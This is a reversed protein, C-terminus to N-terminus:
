NMALTRTKGAEALRRKADQSATTVCDRFDAGLAGKCVANAATDIEQNIQAVSKGKLSIRVTSPDNRAVEIKAAPPRSRGTIEQVQRNADRVADMYCGESASPGKCVTRAADDIERSVQDSSKNALAIRVVSAASNAVHLDSASAPLAALAIVAFAAGSVLKILYLSWRVRCHM